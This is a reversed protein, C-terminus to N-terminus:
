SFVEMLNIAMIVMVVPNENKDKGALTGHQSLIKFDNNLTFLTKPQSCEKNGLLSM